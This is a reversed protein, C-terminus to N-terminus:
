LRSLCHGQRWGTCPGEGGVWCALMRERLPGLTSEWKLFVRAGLHCMKWACRSALRNPRVKGRSFIQFTENINSATELLLTYFKGQDNYCIIPLLSGSMYLNLISDQSSVIAKLKLTEKSKLISTVMLFLFYMQITNRKIGISM